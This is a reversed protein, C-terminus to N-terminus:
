NRSPRVWQYTCLDTGDCFKLIYSFSVDAGSNIAIPATSSMTSTQESPRAMSPDGASALKERSRGYIDISRGSLDM